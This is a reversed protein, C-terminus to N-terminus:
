FERDPFVPRSKPPPAGRLRAVERFAAEFRAARDPERNIAQSGADLGALVWMRTFASTDLQHALRGVEQACRSALLIVRLNACLRLFEILWAAGRKRDEKTARGPKGNETKPLHWPIANWIVVDSRPLGVAKLTEDTRKASSDPNDASIFRTGRVHHPPTAYLICVRARIGGFDPDFWPVGRSTERAIRRALDNLPVVHPEDIRALRARIAAPDSFVYKYRTSTPM